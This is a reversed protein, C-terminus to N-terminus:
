RVANAIDPRTGRVLYELSGVTGTYDFPPEAAIQEASLKTEPELVLGPVQPTMVPASESLKYKTILEAIYKRQSIMMVRQHRNRHVEMKLIDGLDKLKFRNSLEAKLRNILSMNRSMITLADVYIVVILWEVGVKQVDICFAKHCRTFGM